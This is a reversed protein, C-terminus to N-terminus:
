YIIPLENKPREAVLPSASGSTDYEQIFLSSGLKEKKRTIGL